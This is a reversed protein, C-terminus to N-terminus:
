RFCGRLHTNYYAGPSSAHVLGVFLDYPVGPHDYVRGSRFQVCLIGGAYGASSIASSSLPIMEIIMRRLTVRGGGALRSLRVVIKNLLVWGRCSRVCAKRWRWGRSAATRAPNARAPRKLRLVHHCYAIFEQERHCPYADPRRVVQRALLLLDGYTWRHTRVLPWLLLILEDLEPHAWQRSRGAGPAGAFHGQWWQGGLEVLQPFHLPNGERVQLERAKVEAAIEEAKLRSSAHTRFHLSADLWACWRRLSRRVLRVGASFDMQVVPPSRLGIYDGTVEHECNLAM